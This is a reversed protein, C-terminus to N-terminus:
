DRNVVAAQLYTHEHGCAERAMFATHQHQNVHEQYNPENGALQEQKAKDRCQEAVFEGDSRLKLKTKSSM